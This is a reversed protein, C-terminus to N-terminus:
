SEHHMVAQEWHCPHSELQFYLFVYKVELTRPPKSCPFVSFLFKGQKAVYGWCFFHLFSEDALETLESETVLGYTKYVRFGYESAKQVDSAPDFLPDAMQDAIKKAGNFESKLEPDLHAAGKDNTFIAILVMLNGGPRLRLVLKACDYCAPAFAGTPNGKADVAAAFDKGDDQM